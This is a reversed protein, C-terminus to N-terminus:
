INYMQDYYEKMANLQNHFAEYLGDSNERMTRKTNTFPNLKVADDVQEIWEHPLSVSGTLAGSIGAAIATICDTDRGLNVASIMAQKTDGNALKFVCIAKTVVENAYSMSYPMGVGNYVNDFIKRLERFDKCKESIKLGRDIEGVVM